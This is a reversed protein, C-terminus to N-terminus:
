TKRRYLRQEADLAEYDAAHVTFSLSERSGLALVGLPVLSAYLLQHVRDQLDRNFYIMVNRCLICHFENFSADSALNHPAFVANRVLLPDFRAGGHAACYYDSLSGTGGAQQYNLTFQKMRDIAFIGAKARQVVVENFDTAYIRTRERLGAEHLLIAMSYVEEGSSCGAIWLRTYPYTRLLPVVRERVSRFFRPDRFLSSVNISLDLLLREMMAPDALLAQQLQAVGSLGEAQMRQLIRRQLSAPAYDRFDFGYREHVAALLPALEPLGPGAGIM